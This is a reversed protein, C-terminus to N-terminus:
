QEYNIKSRNSITKMSKEYRKILTEAWQKPSEELRDLVNTANVLLVNVFNRMHAYVFFM